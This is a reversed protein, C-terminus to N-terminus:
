VYAHACVCVCQELLQTWKRHFFALGSYNFCKYDCLDLLHDLLDMIPEMNWEASKANLYLIRLFACWSRKHEQKELNVLNANKLVM